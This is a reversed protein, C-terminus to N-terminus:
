ASKKLKLGLQLYQKLNRYHLTYREKDNLTLCLTEAGFKAGCGTGLEKQHESLCEEKIEIKEPVLPYADHLNHLYEPYEMDVELMYGVDQDEKKNLIFEAWDDISSVDVWIFGGIPLFNCLM